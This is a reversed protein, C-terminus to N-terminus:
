QKEKKYKLSELVDGIQVYVKKQVEIFHIGDKIWFHIIATTTQVSTNKLQKM